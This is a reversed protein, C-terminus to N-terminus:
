LIIKHLCSRFYEITYDLGVMLTVAPEWHLYVKANTIDPNRKYPDDSPKPHFSIKSKSKIKKIILKALDEISIEYPNGLNIPYKLSDDSNMLAILANVMDDVFCFSRTQEGDGYITIDKDQLAQLIFNSVVRGDGMDMGPGYTNFIRAIKIDVGYMRYYDFFLSEACRKGEDYCSRLGIPNVNGWYSEPQPHLTPSGYVESTSAQLITSKCRRAVDLLNIAGLVSTRTTQIPNLQYQKPSAPCALNYIQDVIFFNDSFPLTIDKEIFTFLFNSELDEINRKNGTSLDDVCFVENNEDRLLKRCLHSGLFGAGGAVLIKNM